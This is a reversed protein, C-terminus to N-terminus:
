LLTMVLYCYGGVLICLIQLTVLVHRTLQTPLEESGLEADYVPDVVSIM